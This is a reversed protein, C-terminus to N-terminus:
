KKVKYQKGNVRIMYVGSPLSNWSSDICRGSLDYISGTHKSDLTSVDIGTTVDEFSVGLRRAEQSSLSAESISAGAPLSTLLEHM